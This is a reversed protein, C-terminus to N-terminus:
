HAQFLPQPFSFWTFTMHCFAKISVLTMGLDPHPVPLSPLSFSWLCPVPELHRRQSSQSSWPVPPLQLGEASFPARPLLPATNPFHTPSVCIYSVLEPVHLAPLICPSFLLPRLSQRATRATVTLIGDGGAHFTSVSFFSFPFPFRLRFKGLGLRIPGLQGGVKKRAASKM